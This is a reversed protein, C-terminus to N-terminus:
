GEANVVGSASTTAMWSAASFACRRGAPAKLGYRRQVPPQRGTRGNGCPSRRNATLLREWAGRAIGALAAAVARCVPTRIGGAGRLIVTPM